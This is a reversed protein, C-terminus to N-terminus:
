KPEEDNATEDLFFMGYVWLLVLAWIGVAIILLLIESLEM